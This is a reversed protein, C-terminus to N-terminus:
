LLAKVKLRVKPIFSFVSLTECTACWKDALMVIFSERYKPLRLNLPFMHKVIIDAERENLEFDEQANALAKRSHSFGHLRHSKDPTHWDYLFYDHLLAGRILSKKDVNIKLLEVFRLSSYAVAVSHEFCSISGHQMFLKEMQMRPSALIDQGYDLIRQDM